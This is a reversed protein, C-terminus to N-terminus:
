TEKVYEGPADGLAAYGRKAAGLGPPKAKASSRADLWACWAPWWSGEHQPALTLWEDSALYTCDASRELMQFHRHPHGPESVIGANHGGSTLVFTIDSVLEHHLKYVSRWPAVHDTVTGVCFVPLRINSLAVPRGDVPYRGAALDNDLFLRRLYQSHMRAPMRTADANWAMLDNPPAREGLLYNDVIRSWLLDYARLLVFTGSMQEGSLYGTDFMQSEILHLQSEDIFLALEGPESFDTQAALLTV